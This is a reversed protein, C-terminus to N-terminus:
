WRHEKEGGRHYAEPRYEIHGQGEGGRQELGQQHHNATSQQKRRARFEAFGLCYLAAAQSEPARQLLSPLAQFLAEALHQYEHDRNVQKKIEEIGMPYETLQLPKEGVM